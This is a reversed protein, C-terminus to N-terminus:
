KYSYVYFTILSYKGMCACAAHNFMFYSALYAGHGLEDGTNFAHSTCPTLVVSEKCFYLEMLM